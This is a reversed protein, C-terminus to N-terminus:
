SFITRPPPDTTALTASKLPASSWAAHQEIKLASPYVASAEPPVITGPCVAACDPSCHEACCDMGAHDDMMMERHGDAMGSEAMGSSHTKPCDASPIALAPAPAPAIALSLGLWILALIRRMAGIPIHSSGNRLLESWRLLGISSRIATEGPRNPGWDHQFGHGPGRLSDAASGRGTTGQLVIDQSVGCVQGAM